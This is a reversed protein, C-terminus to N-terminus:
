DEAGEDLKEKRKKRIENFARALLEFEEQDLQCNTAGFTIKRSSKPTFHFELRHTRDGEILAQYKKNSTFKKGSLEIGLDKVYNCASAAFNRAKQQREIELAERVLFTRDEEECFEILEKLLGKGWRRRAFQKYSGAAGQKWLTRRFNLMWSKNALDITALALEFMGNETPNGRRLLLGERSWIEVARRGYLPGTKVLLYHAGAWLLKAELTYNTLKLSEVDDRMKHKLYTFLKLDVPNFEM